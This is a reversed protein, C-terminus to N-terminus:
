RQAIIKFMYMLGIIVLISAIAIPFYFLFKASIGWQKRQKNFMVNAISALLAALGWVLLNFGPEDMELEMNEPIEWKLECRPIRIRM